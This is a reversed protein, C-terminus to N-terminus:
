ACRARRDSEGGTGPPRGRGGYRRQRHTARSGRFAAARRALAVLGCRASGDYGFARAGHTRTQQCGRNAQAGRQESLGGQAADLVDGDDDRPLEGIVRVMLRRVQRREPSALFQRAREPTGAVALAIRAQEPEAGTVSVVAQTAADTAIVRFPVQQCRSAITPMVQAVSRAILIFMVGAPPEEITKLLANAATGRLLGVDRLIYVKSKARVPALPVDEILARVQAVLYGTASEPAYVHVDPHTGHDVRMWEDIHGPEDQGAIVCKALMRAAETKGAGPPGVFLYAHSLRGENVAASLFEQVRPQGSLRELAQPVRAKPVRVNKDAM